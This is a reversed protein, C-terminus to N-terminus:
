LGHGFGPAVRPDRRRIRRDDATGGELKANLAANYEAPATPAFVVEIDPYHANFAPIITDQWISLDDNRWSEIVLSAKEAPEAPEAETPEAAAPAETAPPETAPPETAAPGCAAVLIALMSAIVVISWLKKRM